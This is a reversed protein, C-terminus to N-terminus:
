PRSRASVSRRGASNASEAVLWPLPLPEEPSRAVVFGLDHLTDSARSSKTSWKPSGEADSVVPSLLNRGSLGRRGCRNRSRGGALRHVRRRWQGRARSLAPLLVANGLAAAMGTIGIEALGKAGLPNVFADDEPVFLIDIEGVDANVPVHYEALNANVIRGDRADRLSEDFLAMGAGWVIGRLLQSHGTKANSL